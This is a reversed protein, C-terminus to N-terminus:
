AGVRVLFSLQAPLDDTIDDLDVIQSFRTEVRYRIDEKSLQVVEKTTAFQHPGRRVVEEIVERTWDAGCDVPM